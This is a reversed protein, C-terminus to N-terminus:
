LRVLQHDAMPQRAVTAPPPPTTEGPAQLPRRCARAAPHGAASWGPGRPRRSSAAASALASPSCTAPGPPGDPLPGTSGAGPGPALRQSRPGSRGGHAGSRMRISRSGCGSRLGAPARGRDGAPQHDPLSQQGEQESRYSVLQEGQHGAFLAPLTPLPGNFRVVMKTSDAWAEAPAWSPLPGGAVSALRTFDGEPQPLASPETRPGDGARMVDVLNVAVQENVLLDFSYFGGTTVLQLNGKAERTRPLISVAPRPGAYAVNILFHEVDRGRCRQLARGAAPTTTVRNLATRVRYIASPQVDDIVWTAGQMTSTPISPPGGRPRPSSRRVTTGPGAIAPLLLTRRRHRLHVEVVEPVYRAPAFTPTTESGPTATCAALSTAALLGPSLRRM